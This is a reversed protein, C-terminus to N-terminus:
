SSLANIWTRRFESQKSRFIDRRSKIYQNCVPLEQAKCISRECLHPIHPLVVDLAFVM